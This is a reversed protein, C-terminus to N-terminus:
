RFYSSFNRLRKRVPPVRLILLAALISGALLPLSIDGQLSFLNGKRAWAFHLVVLAGALYVMRHLAKWKKGMRKKFWDFSTAALAALIVLATAGVLIFRKELITQGILQWDFQYDLALFITFHIAAYLFAYLGLARRVKLAARFGFLSNLPTCALSLLLLVIAFQGSRQTAAQIPNITLRDSFWAWILWALPAWAAVHVAIQFRSM